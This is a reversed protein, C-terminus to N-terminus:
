QQEIQLPEYEALLDSLTAPDAPPNHIPTVPPNSWELLYGDKRRHTIGAVGERNMESIATSVTSPKLDALKAIDDLQVRDNFRKLTELIARHRGALKFTKQRTDPTANDITRVMEFLGTLNIHLTKVREIEDQICDLSHQLWQRTTDLEDGMDALAARVDKLTPKNNM